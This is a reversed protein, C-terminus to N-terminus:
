RLGGIRATRLEQASRAPCSDAAMMGAYAAPMNTSVPDVTPDGARAASPDVSQVAQKLAPALGILPHWEYRQYAHLDIERSLGRDDSPGAAADAKGHRAGEGATARM